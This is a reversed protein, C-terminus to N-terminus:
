SVPREPPGRRIMIDLIAIDAPNVGPIRSAQGLTSPRIKQLKQSSEYRLTKISSYDIWQPILINDIQSYRQIQEMERKIYGEYKLQIEVQKKVEGPLNPVHGPLKDYTMDPNKLMQSLSTSGAFSSGLRRIETNIMNLNDERAKLESDSCIGIESAHKLMRLGANDQRLLLRHEARSTFMRYPEDVGKTILDDIMVGIYGENRSITITNRGLAKCAANIGAILGQAAAEEYGTTGNIQGALFLNTILKSELLETIQKPDSYDYEIAYGYQTIKCNELGPISHVMDEQVKEPLSNSIGNPYIEISDRGEPEIFVHHKKNDPFKVIKDEVSPCYRVGTGSIYGGYLSSYKLNDRIIQHTNETTHTLYCPLQSSGPSWPRMSSTIQEVHFLKMLDDNKCWNEDNLIFGYDIKAANSIFCPPELGSQIVIAKYDISDKHIRPPTGTKFRNISFGLKSLNNSLGPIVSEDSRGGQVSKSGIHITGNLFTGPALVVTKAMVINNDGLIIGNLKGTIISVGIVSAEVISINRCNGVIDAMRVSYAKKDCQIRVSQVAPGKSLNLIRFQIGTYDANRGMEGGLVDIESVLHSKGIGGISPNCSMRAIVKKDGTVILVKAGMRASALAAECGAHGAGVVIVDFVSM